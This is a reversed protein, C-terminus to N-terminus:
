AFKLLDNIDNDKRFRTWSIGRWEKFELGMKKYVQKVKLSEGLGAWKKFLSKAVATDTNPSVFQAFKQFEKSKFTPNSAIHSLLDPLSISPSQKLKSTLNEKLANEELKRRSSKQGSEKMEKDEKKRDEESLKKSFYKGVDEEKIM